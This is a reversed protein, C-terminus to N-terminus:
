SCAPGGACPSVSINKRNPEVFIGGSQLPPPTQLDARLFVEASTGRAPASAITIRGGHAEAIRKCIAIGLGLGGVHNTGLAGRNLTFPEGLRGLIDPTMGEGTDRVSLNIWRANDRNSETADVTISGSKTHKVANTLFNILLRQVAAADGSMRLDPPVVNASLSISESRLLPRVQELAAECLPQLNFQSWNWSAIGSNLRAAELLDDVIQSLYKIGAGTQKLFREWERTQQAAPNLLYEVIVGLAAIPTRLEHAVIALVQEMARVADSLHNRESQLRLAKAAEDHLRVTREGARLRALLEGRDFPKTMFDNAGADLAAITLEKNVHATLVVLHTFPLTADARVERCFDVGNMRPMDYDVFAIRAGNDRLASLGAAGDSAVVVSYGATELRATLITVSDPDDDVVLVQSAMFFEGLAVGACDM